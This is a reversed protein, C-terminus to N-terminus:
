VKVEPQLASSQSSNGACQVDVSMMVLPMLKNGDSKNLARRGEREASLLM